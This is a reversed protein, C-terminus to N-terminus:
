KRAVIRIIVPNTNGHIALGKSEINEEIEFGNSKLEAVLEENRIFRRYHGCVFADKGVEEGQGYLDDKVSRVELLFLGGHSLNKYAWRIARGAGEEDVAHLSFRSYVADLPESILNDTM